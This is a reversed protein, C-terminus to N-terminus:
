PIAMGPIREAMVQSLLMVLIYTIATASFPPPKGMPMDFSITRPNEQRFANARAARLWAPFTTASTERAERHHCGTM